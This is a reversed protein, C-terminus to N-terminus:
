CRADGDSEIRVGMHGPFHGPLEFATVGEALETEGGVEEFAIPAITREVHPRDSARAFAVGDRHAVYRANAFVLEGDRDTNWGVHDVHLHTLFVVDIQEPAVGAGDSRAAVRGGVGAEM